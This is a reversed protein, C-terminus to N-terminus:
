TISRRVTLTFGVEDCHLREYLTTPVFEMVLADQTCTDVAGPFIGNTVGFCQVINGHATGINFMIERAFGDHDIGNDKGRSSAYTGVTDLRKAVKLAVLAGGSNWYGRYVAGYAGCAIARIDTIDALPIMPRNPMLDTALVEIVEAKQAPELLHRDLERPASRRIWHGSDSFFYNWQLM